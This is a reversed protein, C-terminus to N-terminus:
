QRNSSSSAIVRGSSSAWRSARSASNLAGSETVNPSRDIFFRLGSCVRVANCSTSRSIALALAAAFVVVGRERMMRVWVSFPKQHAIPAIEHPCCKRRRKAGERVMDRSRSRLADGGGAVLANIGENSPNWGQTRRTNAAAEYGSLARLPVAFAARMLNRWYGM